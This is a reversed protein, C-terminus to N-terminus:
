GRAAFAPHYSVTGAPLGGDLSLAQFYAAPVGPLLLAPEPRFGFRAYYGPDGLLVCGAAGAHRLEGLAAEMLQSGIGQHQRQPAVSIPGLGFWRTAEAAGAITVPSVAVHGLLAGDEEAVLSITLQGASRLARVIFQETHESHPAKRFAAITLAEIALADAPVEPRIRLLPM